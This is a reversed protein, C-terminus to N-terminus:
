KEKNQKMPGVHDDAGASIIIRKIGQKNPFVISKGQETQTIKFDRVIRVSKDKICLDRDPKVFIYLKLVEKIFVFHQISFFLLLFDDTELYVANTPEPSPRITAEQTTNIGQMKYDKKEVTIRCFQVDNEIFFTKCSKYFRKCRHLNIFNYSIGMALLYSIFLIFLVIWLPFSLFIDRFLYIFYCFILFLFTQLSFSWNKKKGIIHRKIASYSISM